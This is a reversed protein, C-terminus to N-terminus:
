ASPILVNVCSPKTKSVKSQGVVNAKLVVCWRKGSVKTKPSRMKLTFHYPPNVPVNRILWTPRGKVLKYPRNSKVAKAGKPLIGTVNVKTLTQHNMSAVVISVTSISGPKEGGFAIVGVCVPLSVSVPSGNFATCSTTSRASANTGVLLVSALVAVPVIKRLM